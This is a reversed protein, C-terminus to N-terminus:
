EPIPLGWRKQCERWYGCQRKSCMRGGFGTPLAKDPDQYLEDMRRSSRDLVARAGAKMQENVVVLRPEVNPKKTRAGVHFTFRTTGPQDIAYILPEWQSYEHGAAWMQGSSKMDIPGDDEDEVDIFGTIVLGTDLTVKIEREVGGAIPQVDLALRNAYARQLATLEDKVADFRERGWDTEDKRRELSAVAFDVTEPVPLNVRTEAKQHFDFAAGDHWASGLSMWATPPRILGMPYRFAFQQDCRFLM